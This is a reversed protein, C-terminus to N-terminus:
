ISGPTAPQSDYGPALQASGPPPGFRNVGLTGKTAMFFLLVIAGILPILSILIWWGSRDTDHLRRATVALSPLLLALGAIATIAGGSYAVRGEGTQVGTSGPFLISDLIGSVIFVLVYFLAWWWYESRSARGSFTVYKRFGTEVASRFDM